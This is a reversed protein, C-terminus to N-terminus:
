NIIYSFFQSFSKIAFNLFETDDIEDSLIEKIKLFTDCGIEGTDNGEMCVALKEICDLSIKHFYPKVKPKQWDPNTAISLTLLFKGFDM